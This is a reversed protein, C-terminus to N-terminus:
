KLIKFSKVYSAIRGGMTGDGIISIGDESYMALERDNRLIVSITDTTKDVYKVEVKITTYEVGKKLEDCGVFLIIFVFGIIIRKM